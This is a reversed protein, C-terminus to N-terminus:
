RLPLRTLEGISWPGGDQTVPKCFTARVWGTPEGIVHWPYQERPERPRYEVERDPWRPDTTIIKAGAGMARLLASARWGTYGPRDEYTKGM